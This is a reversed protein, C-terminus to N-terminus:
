NSNLLVKIHGWFAFQFNSLQMYTLCCCGLASVPNGLKPQPKKMTTILFAFFALPLLGSILARTEFGLPQTADLIILCITFHDHNKEASFQQL